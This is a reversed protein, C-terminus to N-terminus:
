QPFPPIIENGSIPDKGRLDMICQTRNMGPGSLDLLLESLGFYSCSKGCTCHVTFLVESTTTCQGIASM